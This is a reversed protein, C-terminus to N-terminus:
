APHALRSQTTDIAPPSRVLVDSVSPSADQLHLESVFGAVGALIQNATSTWVFPKATENCTDLYHRIAQELERTSHHVARQNTVCRRRAVVTNGNGNVCDLVIGARLALARVSTRRRVSGELTAREEGSVVLEAASRGPRM